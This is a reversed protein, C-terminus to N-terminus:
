SEGEDDALVHVRLGAAVAMAVTGSAGASGNRVFAVVVDPNSEVMRRNRRPGAARGETAWDAPWAEETGGLAKWLTAVKRDCLPNDGHVLVAGPFESWLAKMTARVSGWRRWDRSITVLIRIQGTM